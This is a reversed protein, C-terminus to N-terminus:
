SPPAQTLPLHVRFHAGRAGGASLAEVSGGHAVVYERVISLGLGSGKVSGSGQVRGQYYPEFIRAEDDAAIGPGEDIVDIILTAGDANMNVKITGGVPSFRIANSLLNDLVARIRAADAPVVVESLQMLLTLNKAQLALKQHQAVREMLPRPDVPQIDLKLEHFQTAGYDLLEEIRQQLEISNHRLIEAIERQEATLAGVVGDSLLQAGERLATLPTKLEHSVQQLFRNKQRELDLLQQRMWEIRQGLNELDQPGSISVPVNFNGGGLERIAADIQRIPRAILITFGVVLFVVLPFLALGQWLLIRQADAATKRMAEVEQDILANSKTMIAQARKSLETFRAVESRLVPRKLSPNALADFIKQETAVIADLDVRQAADFPLDNFQAATQEFKTRNMKYTDLLSRDGLIVIQHANRELAGLLENLRRSSQIAQVARYVATQSQNVLRDVAVASSILAFMPPLAVLAFGVLLLNLFSRPYRM